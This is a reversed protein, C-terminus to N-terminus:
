SNHQLQCEEYRKISETGQYMSGYELLSVLINNLYTRSTATRTYHSSGESQMAHSSQHLIDEASGGVSLCVGEETEPGDRHYRVCQGSVLHFLLTTHHTIPIRVQWTRIFSSLAAETKDVKFTPLSRRQCSKLLGLAQTSKTGSGLDTIIVHCAEYRLELMWASTEPKAQSVILYLTHSPEKSQLYIREALETAMVQPKPSRGYLVPFSTKHHQKTAPPAAEPKPDGPDSETPQLGKALSNPGAVFDQHPLDRSFYSTSLSHDISPSHLLALILFLSDIM